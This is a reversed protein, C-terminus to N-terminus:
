PRVHTANYRLFGFFCSLIKNHVVTFAVKNMLASTFENALNVDSLLAGGIDSLNTQTAEPVRAQYEASANDRITNLMEQLNM